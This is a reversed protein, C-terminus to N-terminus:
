AACIRIHTDTDPPYPYTSVANKSFFGSVHIRKLIKLLYILIFSILFELLLLLWPKCEQLQTTKSMNEANGDLWRELLLKGLMEMWEDFDL